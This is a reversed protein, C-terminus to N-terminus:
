AAVLLSDVSETIHRGLDSFADGLFYFHGGSYRRQEFGAVTESSWAPMSSPPAWHDEDGAFTTLPCQLPDRGPDPRYSDVARLDARVTSLLRDRIEPVGRVQEPTGGMEILTQLLAEDDLEHLKRRGIAQFSPAIRGSVGVWVPSKGSGGAPGGLMWRAVEVAVIAGLSHGFLAVPVDLWPEIDRCAQAILEPMTSHPREGARRGRGPLDMLLVDWEAPLTRILPFYTAASGGAHHFGILRLKADPRPNPRLFASM